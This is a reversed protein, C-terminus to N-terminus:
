AEDGINTDNITGEHVIDGIICRTINIYDTVKV